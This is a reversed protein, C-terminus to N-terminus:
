ASKRREKKEKRHAVEEREAGDDVMAAAEGHSKRRKGKSEGSAGSAADEVDRHKSKRKTAPAVEGLGQASADLFLAVDAAQGSARKKAGKGGAASKVKGALKM